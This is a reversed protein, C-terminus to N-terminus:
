SRTAAPSSGARARLEQVVRRIQTTEENQDISFHLAPGQWWPLGAAPVGNVTTGAATGDGDITQVAAAPVSVDEIRFALQHCGRGGPCLSPDSNEEPCGQNPQCVVPHLLVETAKGQLQAVPLIVESRGPLMPFDIENGVPCDVYGPLDCQRADAFMRFSGDQPLAVEIPAIASLDFPRRAQAVPVQGLGPVLDTQGPRPDHMNLWTDAADLYLNWEAPDDESPDKSSEHIDGDLNNFITFSELRVRFRAVPTADASWWAHWTAGFDQLDSTADKFPVTIQVKDGVVRSRPERAHHSTRIDQQVHLRAGPSPAPGPPALVYSYERNVPQLESCGDGAAIRAAAATPHTPSSLACEEVAKAKGGQNSIYVDLRSAQVASAAGSPVFAGQKRWTALEQIPHIEAEEGGIQEAGATGLPDGPVFDSDPIKRNGEQWHGCDWIWSGTERVHDGPSPWAWPPVLGSEWETHIQPPSEALNRTSLLPSDGGDPEIDFNADYTRHVGFLDSGATHTALDTGEITKAVNSGNVYVWSPFLTPHHLDTLGAGGEGLLALQSRNCGDAISQTKSDPHTTFARAVAVASLLALAVGIAM